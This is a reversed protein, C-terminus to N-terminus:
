RKQDGHAACVCCAVQTTFPVPEPAVANVATKVVGAGVHHLGRAKRGQRVAAAGGCQVRADALVCPQHRRGQSRRVCGPDAGAGRGQGRAEPATFLDQLYCTLEIRTTNRHYLYHTLGLLQGGSEAVLAHVPEAPDFFRQWTTETIKQRLATAGARGYFANYGDWLPTWGALDTPEIPRIVVAHSM